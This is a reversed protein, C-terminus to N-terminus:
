HLSIAPLAVLGADEPAFRNSAAAGSRRKSILLNQPMQRLAIYWHCAQFGQLLLVVRTLRTLRAARAAARCCSQDLGHRWAHPLTTLHSCACFFPCSDFCVRGHMAHLDASKSKSVAVKQHSCRLQSSTWRSTSMTRLSTCRHDDIYMDTSEPLPRTSVGSDQGTKSIHRGHWQERASAGATRM